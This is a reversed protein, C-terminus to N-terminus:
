KTLSAFFESIEIGVEKSLQTDATCLFDLIEQSFVRGGLHVATESHILPKDLPVAEKEIQRFILGQKDIWFYNDQEFVVARLKREQINISLENTSNKKVAVDKCALFKELILQKAQKKDFVFISTSPFFLIKKEAIKRIEKEIELPDIFHVGQVTIARIQFVPSFIFFYFLGFLIVVGLVFFWFFRSRFISKKKRLHRYKKRKYYKKYDKAKM